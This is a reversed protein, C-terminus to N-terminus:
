IHILSLSERGLGLHITMFRGELDSVLRCARRYFSVAEAAKVPDAHGLDVGNFACHYRIELPRLRSVSPRLGNERVGDTPLDELKLTWDIGDFGCELAMCRLREVDPIFNCMALHPENM